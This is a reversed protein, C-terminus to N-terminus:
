ADEGDEDEDDHSDIFAGILRAGLRIATVTAFLGLAIPLVPILMATVGTTVPAFLNAYNM